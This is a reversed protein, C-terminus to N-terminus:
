RALADRYLGEDFGVLCFDEGAVIPRKILKGDAALASLAEDESMEALREGFRGERYSVGSTNFLKRLPLGSKKWMTRLASKSPPSAVIDVSQYAVGHADLWKLAKRCTGCKPYQYVRLTM